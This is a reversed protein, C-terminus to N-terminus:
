QLSNWFGLGATTFHSQGSQHGGGVDCWVVPSNCGGYFDCTDNGFTMPTPTTSCGNLEIFMDRALASGIEHGEQDTESSSDGPLEM